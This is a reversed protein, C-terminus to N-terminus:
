IVKIEKEQLNSYLLHLVSEGGRAGRGESGAGEGDRRCEYNRLFHVVKVNREM